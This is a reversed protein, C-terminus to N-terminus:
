RLLTISGKLNVTRGTSLEAKLVYVYVGIPQATGKHKGDWGQTKDNIVAIQQGWQNFIHMELKDIYNGYVYLVDNKGDGNPTFVNPVFVDKNLPMVKITYSQTTGSCGGIVPTATITGIIDQDTRNTATFSPVTGTGSVGVGISPNSNTWNTAAGPSTIFNYSPIFAGDYVATDEAISTTPVANVELKFSTTDTCQGPDPTFVYTGNVTNDVVAPNWTGTIGNASTTALVPVITGTCISQFTGFSFTPKVIPNVTVTYVFPTVCQGAVTFTYIGSVQNSVVSPDWVGTIGNDSTAPLAPVTGGACITLSNGFSFTPIANATVTVDFTVPGTVCQGGNPTFTYIASNQNDATAPSWTGAIGNQSTNPLSPVNGGACITLTTGFSFTPTINPNVTVAFSATTACQGPDPTFTYTGTNQDDVSSPSWSGTIGNQSSNPLPPVTGGACITLSTGFSFTPTINPNVTVAFSTTTACQGPTPTFTYTGSTQNSVSSPSWTGTIGNQSVLPLPPVTGGACVSLSTGFSFTPTVNPNVVVNFIAATACQGPFPTFTYTGSLQSSVTSPSWSGIVGNVSTQVLLPVSAGACITLSTGFNFTPTINPSVIVTFTTTTACQGATPTFVYTGNITNDVVAPTWIGTIGEISTGTLIPVAGGDCISLITGFSFTPVANPEVTVTLSASTACQGPDPTFTYVASNQNDIAVPNWTGTIGNQSTSPLTPVSGSSCVSLSTGFGFTPTVNPNVTVNLVIPSACQGAFPTFTYVGTNHNDITSPSWTGIIGNVSTGPLSPVSAGDCITISTGFSFTPVVNPSVFVSFSAISACQTGSPTFIYTASNQDDVVAPTWVGAIGNQSTPPLPPVTGGACISLSTGFSFAPVTRQTVTIPLTVQVGCQNVDPTFTYTASNQNDVTAPSWTGHIGNKSTLPLTPATTGACFPPIPDFTPVFIPDSLIIGTFLNTTCGNIELSFNSYFGKNLGTIILQGSGNTVYTNPGVATGDDTYSLQYSAGAVLGGITISGQNGFCSSPNTSSLNPSQISFSAKYNNGSNNVPLTSNCAAPASNNIQADFYVELVYNGPAFATLDVNSFFRQWKQDGASCSSGDSPFQNSGNCSEFLPLDISTFAGAPSSQLHVNYYLHALCVNSTGPDHSTNVQAGSLILNGSNQTYIGLNANNFNSTGISGTTNLFSSQSCDTIWLASATASPQANALNCVLAILIAGLYSIPKTKM